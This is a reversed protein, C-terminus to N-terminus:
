AAPAAAAALSRATAAAALSRATATAALSRATASKVYWQMARELDDCEEPICPGLAVKQQGGKLVANKVALWKNLVANAREANRAM